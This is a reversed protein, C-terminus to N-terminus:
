SVRSGMFFSGAPICALVSPDPNAPISNTQALVVRFGHNNGWHNPADNGRRASRCSAGYNNWSGGRLVRNTGSAAGLPDSVNEWTPYKGLWDQCWEWVNGCMDYLGWPNPEYSGVPTTQGVNGVPNWQYSSYGWTADFEYHSDFNADGGHIANGLYYATTTGARCSYEWEAETPLRYVWGEPLRGASQERRTLRACYDSAQYWTIMEVPLNTNGTFYSPNSGMVSLYDGQTVLYKSMYFGKTLTVSHQTEDSPTNPSYLWSELWPSGMVFTGARIWVLLAPYPNKIPVVDLTGAVFSFEYNAASLTGATVTIPYSKAPSNTTATTSLAPAGSLVAVTEGNVFGSFTATLVPNDAGKVKTKNDARVTLVAKNVTLCNTVPLAANYSADGPQTAIINANGAGTITVTNGNILAVNTNDSWLSVLLGSSTTVSLDIPGDGYNSASLPPFNITQDPGTFPLPALVVRFGVDNNRWYPWSRGRYASRCCRGPATWGAGRDIRSSNSEAGVPDSVPGAPYTGYWDQCWSYVNGCMDYLGWPNPPYSGVPTTQGVYGVPNSQYIDGTTADYEYYSDFNAMWGHVASGFYFATNTGARCAYEWEAETPLRYVWGAPLRGAVMERATLLGCYNTADYWTVMEVPLNTNGTFYSPNNGVVSLYEGQRVLYKSMYFGKTLTVTHKTEAGDNNERMAENNPSGMVFTGPPIWVLLAPNPNNTPTVTLTGPVFSFEYNPSSFTGAAATIPYAGAPSNPTATTSLIPAGFVADELTEGYVFGSYNATFVPNTAGCARNTNNITVTLEAKNVTLRNTVPPAATYNTIDGSQTAIINATGAGFIAVLSGSVEAVSSNDSRFSVPLGSSATANLRFLGDGYTHAALSPFSITQGGVTIELTNTASGFYNADTVTAVVQYHGVNVPPSSLGDYTVAVALKPPETTVTVSKATGDFAQNLGSLTVTAAFPGGGEIVRYFRRQPTTGNTDIWLHPSNPLAFADVTKWNNSQAVDNVCQVVYNTGVAGSISLGMYLGPSVTAPHNQAETKPGGVLLGIIAALLISHIKNM